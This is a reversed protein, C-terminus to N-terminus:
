KNGKEGINAKPVKMITKYLVFGILLCTPGIIFHPLNVLINHVIDTMSYGANADFKGLALDIVAYGTFFGVIADFTYFSGFARFYFRADKPSRWGAIAAWIGSTSHLIDDRLNIRFGGLLLGNEDTFGPLHGLLVVLFFMTAFFWAYKQITSM